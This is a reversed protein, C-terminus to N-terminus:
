SCRVRYVFCLGVTHELVVPDHMIQECIPCLFCPEPCGLSEAEGNPYEKKMKKKIALWSLTFIVDREEKYTDAEPEIDSCIEEVIKTLNNKLKWEKIEQKLGENPKRM